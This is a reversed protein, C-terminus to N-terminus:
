RAHDQRHIRKGGPEVIIGLGYVRQAVFGRESRQALLELGIVELFQECLHQKLVVMTGENFHHGSGLLRALLCLAKGGDLLREVGCLELSDHGLSFFQM